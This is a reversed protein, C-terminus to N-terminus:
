RPLTTIVVKYMNVEVRQEL